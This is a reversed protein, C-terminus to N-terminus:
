REQMAHLAAINVGGCVAGDGRRAAGAPRGLDRVLRRPPPAQGGGRRVPVCPFTRLNALSVKVAEQELARHVSREAPDAGGALVRDRAEDLLDIWHDIFGGEGPPAGAFRQSLAAAVGGCQGHGLVIVDAVELQTM